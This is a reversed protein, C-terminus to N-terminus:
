KLAAYWGAAARLTPADLAHELTLAAGSLFTIAYCGCAAEWTLGLRLKPLELRPSEGVLALAM